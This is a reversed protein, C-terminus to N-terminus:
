ELDPPLLSDTVWAQHLLKDLTQALLNLLIGMRRGIEEGILTPSVTEVGVIHELADSSDRRLRESRSPIAGRDVGQQGDKLSTRTM